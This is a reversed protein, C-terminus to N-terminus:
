RCKKKNTFVNQGGINSDKFHTKWFHVCKPGWIFQSTRHQNRRKFNTLMQWFRIWINQYWDSGTDLPQLSNNYRWVTTLWIIGRHSAWSQRQERPLHCDLNAPGIVNKCWVQGCKCHLCHEHGRGLHDPAGAVWTYWPYFTISCDQVPWVPTIPCIMKQWVFHSELSRPSKIIQGIWRVTSGWQHQNTFYVCVTPIWHLILLQTKMQDWNLTIWIFFTASSM